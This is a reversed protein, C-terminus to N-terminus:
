AIASRFYAASLIPQDREASAVTRKAAISLHKNFSGIKRGIRRPLRISKGSVPLVHSGQVMKTDLTMHSAKALLRCPTQIAPGSPLAVLFFLGINM